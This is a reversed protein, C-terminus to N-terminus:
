HSPARYLDPSFRDLPLSYCTGLFQPLCSSQARGLLHFNGPNHCPMIMPSMVNYLYTKRKGVEKFGESQRLFSSVAQKSIYSANGLVPYKFTQKKKKKGSIRELSVEALNTPTAKYEQCERSPSFLHLCLQKLYLDLSIVLM